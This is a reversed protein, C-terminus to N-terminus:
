GLKNYELVIPRLNLAKIVYKSTTTWRGGINERVNCNIEYSAPVSFFVMDDTEKKRLFKTTIIGSAIGDVDFLVYTETRKLIHKKLLPIFVWEEKGKELLNQNNQENVKDM